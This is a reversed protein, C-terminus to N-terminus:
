GAWNQSSQRYGCRKLGVTEGGGQTCLVAAAQLVALPLPQQVMAGGMAKGYSEVHSRSLASDAQVRHVKTPLGGGTQTPPAVAIEGSVGCQVRTVQLRAFRKMDGWLAVGEAVRLAGGVQRGGAAHGAVAAQVQGVPQTSVFSAGGGQLELLSATM